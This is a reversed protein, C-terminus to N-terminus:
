SLDARAFGRRKDSKRILVCDCRVMCETKGDGPFHTMTSAKHPSAAALANCGACNEGITRWIILADPGSAAVFAENATGRVRDLYFDARRALAAKDVLGFEDLYRGADIADGFGALFEAQTDMAIQAMASDAFEAATFDGAKLRGLRAAKEHARELINDMHDAFGAGDMYGAAFNDILSTIEARTDILLNKYTRNTPLGAQRRDILM